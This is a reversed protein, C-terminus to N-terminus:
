MRFLCKAILPKTFLKKLLNKKKHKVEKKKKSHSFFPPLAIITKELFTEGLSLNHRDNNTKGM